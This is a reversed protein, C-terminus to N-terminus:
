QPDRAYQSLRQDELTFSTSITGAHAALETLAQGIAGMDTGLWEQADQLSAALADAGVVGADLGALTRIVPALQNGAARLTAQAETLVPAEIRLDAVAVGTM